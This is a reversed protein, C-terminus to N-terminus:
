LKRMTFINPMNFAICAKGRLASAPAIGSVDYAANLPGYQLTGDENAKLIKTVITGLMTGTELIVIDGQRAVEGHKFAATDAVVYSSPPIHPEMSHANHSMKFLMVDTNMTYAISAYLIFLLTNIKTFHLKRTQSVAFDISSIIHLSALLIISIVFHYCKERPGTFPTLSIGLLLATSTTYYIIWKKNNGIMHAMGPALLSLTFAAIKNMRMAKHSPAM